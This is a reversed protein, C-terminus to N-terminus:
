GRYIVTSFYLSLYIQFYQYHYRVHWDNCGVEEDQQKIEM